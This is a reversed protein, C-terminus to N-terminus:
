VDIHGDIDEKKYMHAPNCCARNNCTRKVQEGWKLEGKTLMWAVRHAMHLHGRWYFLAHGRENFKGRWSWCENVGQKEVFFWFDHKEKM